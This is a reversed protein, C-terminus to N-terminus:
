LCYRAKVGSYFKLSIQQNINHSTINEVRVSVTVGFYICNNVVARGGCALVRPHARCVPLNWLGTFIM